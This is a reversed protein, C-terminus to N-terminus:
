EDSVIVASAGSSRVVVLLMILLILVLGIFMSLSSDNVLGEGSVWLEMGSFNLNVPKLSMFYSILVSFTLLFIIQNVNLLFPYNSTVLCVYMFMVLLGGIYVLFLIYSYWWGSFLSILSVLYFSILVLVAGLSVPNKFLPFTSLLVLILLSM